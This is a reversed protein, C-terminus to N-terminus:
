GGGALANRNGFRIGAFRRRECGLSAQWRQVSREGCAYADTASDLAAQPYAAFLPQLGDEDEAVCARGAELGVVLRQVYDAPVDVLDVPVTVLWPTRTAALLAVVGALPGPFDGESDSVVAVGLSRYRELERNASIVVAAAQSSLLRLVRVVQPEGDVEIWGKDRGGVRRGAGGALIGVTVPDPPGRM